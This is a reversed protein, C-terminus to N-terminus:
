YALVAATITKLLLSLFVLISSIHTLYIICSGFIDQLM